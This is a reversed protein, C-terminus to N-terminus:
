ISTFYENLLFSIFYDPDPALLCFSSPNTPRNLEQLVFFYCPFFDNEIQVVGRGGWRDKERKVIQIYTIKEHNFQNKHEEIKTWM